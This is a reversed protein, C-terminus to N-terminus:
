QHRKRTFFVLAAVAGAGIALGWKQKMTLGGPEVGKSLATKILSKTTDYINNWATLLTKDWVPKKDVQAQWATFNGEIDDTYKKDLTYAAKQQIYDAALDQFATSLEKISLM